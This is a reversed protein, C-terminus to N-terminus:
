ILGVFPETSAAPASTLSVHDKSPRRSAFGDVRHSTKQCRSCKEHHHDVHKLNTTQKRLSSPSRELEHRQSYTTNPSAEAHEGDTTAHRSMPQGLKKTSPPQPALNTQQAGRHEHRRQYDVSPSSGSNRLINPPKQPSIPPHVSSRPVPYPPPSLSPSGCSFAYSQRSVSHFDVSPVAQQLQPKPSFAPQDLVILDGQTCGATKPETACTAKNESDNIATNHQLDATENWLTVHRADHTERKPIQSWTNHDESYTSLERSKENENMHHQHWTGGTRIAAKEKWWKPVSSIGISRLVNLSPMEHKYRCGKATYGCEGRRLWYTCYVKKPPDQKIGSPPLLQQRYDFRQVETQFTGVIGDTPLVPRKELGSTALGLKTSSCTAHRHDPSEAQSWKLSRPRPPPQFNSNRNPMRGLKMAYGEGRAKANSPVFIPSRPSQCIAQISVQPTSTKTGSALPRPSLPQESTQVALQSPYAMTERIFKWKEVAVQWHSLTCQVGELQFPLQDAPVLPVMSRDSRVIFYRLEEALPTSSSTSPAFAVSAKGDDSAM